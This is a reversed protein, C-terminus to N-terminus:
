FKNHIVILNLNPDITKVQLTVADALDPYRYFNRSCADNRADKVVAEQDGDEAVDIYMISKGNNEFSHLGMSQQSMNGWRILIGFPNLVFIGRSTAALPKFTNEQSCALSVLIYDFYHKKCLFLTM